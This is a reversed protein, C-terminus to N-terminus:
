LRLNEYASAMFCAASAWATVPKVTPSILACRLWNMSGLWVYTHIGSPVSAHSGARTSLPSGSLRPLSSVTSTLGSPRPGPPARVSVPLSRLRHWIMSAVVPECM